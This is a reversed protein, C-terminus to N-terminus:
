NGHKKKVEFIEILPKALDLGLKFLTTAWKPDQYTEITIKPSVIWNDLVYKQLFSLLKKRDEKTMEGEEMKDTDIDDPFSCSIDVYDEWLPRIVTVDGMKTPFIETPQVSKKIKEIDKEFEELAM